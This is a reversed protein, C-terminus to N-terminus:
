KKVLKKTVKARLREGNEQPPLLLNRRILNDPDCEPMPKIISQGADDQRSRFFVTPLGTPVKPTETTKSVKQLYWLHALSGEM